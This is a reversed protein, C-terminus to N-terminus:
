LVFEMGEAAVRFGRAEVHRRAESAPDLAPNSHNLHTFLIQKNGDRVLPELLDMSQTILPHPVSSVDRGPLEDLSYFTGDLLAVDVDALVETLPTSWKAWADTDPVYLLTKSPGRLRIAVTDSFEDRHPVPLLTVTVAETATGTGLQFSAGRDSTPDSNTKPKNPRLALNGFEVLQSWPANQRLFDAMRPTCHVPLGHTHIAEYGFFALGLYHGIHAHTLVVGDVPTRDVRDDPADRVDTLTDLQPRIDPTVDLLYIQPAQDASGPLILALSAIYRRRAPDSQAILRAADCRECSCAAHPLGGDQVTGIVRVTPQTFRTGEQTVAQPAAEDASASPADLPSAGLLGLPNAGLLGTAMSGLLIDRRNLSPNATM